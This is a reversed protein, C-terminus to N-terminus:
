PGGAEGVGYDVAPSRVVVVIEEDELSRKGGRGWCWPMSKTLPGGCLVHEGWSELDGEDDGRRRKSAAGERGWCWPMSKTLPGGCLVHEGWSELDSESRKTPAPTPAAAILPSTLLTLLLSRLPPKMKPPILQTPPPLNHNPTPPRPAKQLQSQPTITPKIDYDLWQTQKSSPHAHHLPQLWVHVSTFYARSPTNTNALPHPQTKM